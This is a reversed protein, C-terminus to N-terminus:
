AVGGISAQGILFPRMRRDGVRHYTVPLGTSAHREMAVRFAESYDTRLSLLEPTLWLGFRWTHIAVSWVGPAVEGLLINRRLAQPASRTLARRNRAAVWERVGYVVASM